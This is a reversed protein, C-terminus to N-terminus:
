RAGMARLVRVAACAAGYGNDINTVMLGPACSALVAGLASQGGQAVGYGVSTPVAIVVSGVLGGVATPLAADMGAVVIVVPHRRIEDLRDMLRWMAALGVDVFESAAHGGYRLTRVIERTVFADSTGGAVVAVRAPGAPEPVEGFYATRSLPEWDIRERHHGPLADLQERSLRTILLRASRAAALDLIHALHEASKGAGYIAEEFGIRETRQFDLKIEQATGM